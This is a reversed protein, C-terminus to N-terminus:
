LDNDYIMKDTFLHFNIIKKNFDDEFYIKEINFNNQKLHNSFIKNLKKSPIKNNNNLININEKNFIKNEFRKKTNEDKEKENLNKLSIRKKRLIKSKIIFLNEKKEKNKLSFYDKLNLM